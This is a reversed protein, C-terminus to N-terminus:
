VRFASDFLYIQLLNKFSSLRDVSVDSCIAFVCLLNMFLLLVTQWRVCTRASLACVSFTWSFFDSPRDVSVRGLLCRVSLSPERYSTPRDTLQCVDSCVACLCLLNMILLLVTQWSVCGLLCRVSLSPERYSTPRDTLQCMRASLVCVSFTPGDPWFIVCCYECCPWRTVFRSWHEKHSKVLGHRDSSTDSSRYKATTQFYVGDSSLPHVAQCWSSQVDPFTWGSWATGCVLCRAAASNRGVDNVSAVIYAVLM